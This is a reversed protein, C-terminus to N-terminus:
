NISVDRNDRIVKIIKAKEPKMLFLHIDNQKDYDFYNIDIVADPEDQFIVTYNKPDHENQALFEFDFNFGTNHSYEIIDIFNGSSYLAIKAADQNETLKAFTKVAKIFHYAAERMILKESNNDM